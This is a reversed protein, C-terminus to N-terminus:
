SDFFQRVYKCGESYRTHVPHTFELVYQEQRKIEAVANEIQEDDLTFAYKPDLFTSIVYIPDCISPDCIIKM